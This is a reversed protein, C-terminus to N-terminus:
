EAHGNTMLSGLNRRKRKQKIIKKQLYRATYVFILIQEILFECLFQCVQRDEDIKVARQEIDYLDMDNVLGTVVIDTNFTALSQM